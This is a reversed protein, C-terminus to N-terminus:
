TTSSSRCRSSRGCSRARRDHRGHLDADRPVPPPRGLARAQAPRDRDGLHHRARPLARDGDPPPDGRAGAHARGRVGALRGSRTALGRPAAGPRARRPGLDAAAPRADRIRVPQRLVHLGVLVRLDPGRLRERAADRLAARRAPLRRRRQPVPERRRDARRHGLDLPGLLERARGDTRAAGPLRERGLHVPEGQVARRDPAPGGVPALARARRRLDPREPQAAGEAPLLLARHRGAAAAARPPAPGSPRAPLGDAARVRVAGGLVAHVPAHRELALQGVLLRGHRPLRRAAPRAM